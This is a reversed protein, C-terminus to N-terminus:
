ADAEIEISRSAHLWAETPGGVGIAAVLLWVLLGGIFSPVLWPVASVAAGMVVGRELHRDGVFETLRVGLVTFGFSALVMILVGIAVLTLDVAPGSIKSLQSVIYFGFFVVIIQAVVGYVVSRLPSEMSSDVSNGVFTESLYVMAGGFVLVLAFSGVARVLVSADTIISPDVSQAAAVAPFTALAAVVAGFQGRYSSTM